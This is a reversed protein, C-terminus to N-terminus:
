LECALAAVVDPGSTHVCNFRFRCGSRNNCFARGLPVYYDSQYMYVCRGGFGVGGGLGEWGLSYLAIVCGGSMLEAGALLYVAWHLIYIM